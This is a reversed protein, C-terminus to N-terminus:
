PVQVECMSSSVRILIDAAMSQESCSSERKNPIGLVGDAKYERIALDDVYAEATKGLM